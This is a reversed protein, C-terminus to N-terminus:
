EVALSLPWGLGIPERGGASQAWLLSGLYPLCIIQGVSGMRFQQGLFNHILIHKKYAVIGQHSTVYCFSIQHLKM